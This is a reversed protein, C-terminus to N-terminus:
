PPSPRFKKLLAPDAIVLQVDREVSGDNMSIFSINKHRRISKVWGLATVPSATPLSLVDQLTNPLTDLNGAHHPAQIFVSALRRVLRELHCRASPRTWCNAMILHRREGRENSFEGTERSPFGM